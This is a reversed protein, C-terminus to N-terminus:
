WAGNGDQSSIGSFKDGCDDSGCDGRVLVMVMKLAGVVM